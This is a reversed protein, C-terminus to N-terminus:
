HERRSPATGEGGGDPGDGHRNRMWERALNVVAAIFVLDFVMHATVLGRALQGAAHVDGYGVTAATATSFYLADVRTSLGVFQDPHRAAIFYYAFSFALLAIELLLVLHWASLRREERRVELVVAAMVAAIAVITVVVGTLVGLPAREADVPAVFYGALLFVPVAVAKVALRSM